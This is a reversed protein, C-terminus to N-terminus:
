HALKEFAWLAGLRHQEANLEVHLLNLDLMVKARKFRLDSPAGAPWDSPRKCNKQHYKQCGLKYLKRADGQIYKQNALKKYAYGQLESLFVPIAILGSKAYGKAALEVTMMAGAYFHYYDAEVLRQPNEGLGLEVARKSEKQFQKMLWPSINVPKGNNWKLGEPKYLDAFYTGGNLNRYNLFHFDNVLRVKEESSLDSQHIYQTTLQNYGNDHGFVSLIRLASLRDGRATELALAWIDRTTKEWILIRQGFKLAPARTLKTYFVLAMLRLSEDAMLKKSHYNIIGVPLDTVAGGDYTTPVDTLMIEQSIKLAGYWKSHNRIFSPVKELMKMWNQFQSISGPASPAADENPNEVTNESVMNLPTSADLDSELAHWESKQKLVEAREDGTLGSDPLLLFDTVTNRVQGDAWTTQPLPKGKWAESWLNFLESASQERTLTVREKKLTSPHITKLTLAHRHARSIQVPLPNPIQFLKSELDRAAFAPTTISLAYLFVRTMRKM